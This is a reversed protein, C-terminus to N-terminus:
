NVGTAQKLKAIDIKIEMLTKNLQYLPLIALPMLISSITALNQVVEM